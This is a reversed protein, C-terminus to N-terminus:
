KPEPRTGRHRQGCSWLMASFSLLRTGIPLGAESTLPELLHPRHPPRLPGLSQELESHGTESGSCNHNESRPLLRFPSISPTPMPGLMLTRCFMCWGALSLSPTDPYPTM